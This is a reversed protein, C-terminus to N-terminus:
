VAAEQFKECEDDQQAHGQAEQVRCRGKDHGEERGGAPQLVAQRGGRLVVRRLRFGPGPRRRRPPPHGPRDQGPRPRGGQVEQRLARRQAADPPLGQPRPLAPAAQAPQGVPHLAPRPEGHHEQVAPLQLGADPLLVGALLRLQHLLAAADAAPQRRLRRHLVRRVAAVDDDVSFRHLAQLRHPSKAPQHHPEGSPHAGVPRGRVAGHRPDGAAGEEKQLSRGALTAPISYSTSIGLCGPSCM